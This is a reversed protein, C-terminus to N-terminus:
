INVPDNQKESSGFIIRVLHDAKPREEMYDSASLLVCGFMCSVAQIRYELGFMDPTRNQFPM